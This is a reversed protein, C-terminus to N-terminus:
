CWINYLLFTSKYINLQSSFRCFNKHFLMHTLFNCRFHYGKKHRKGISLAHRVSFWIFFLFFFLFNQFFEQCIPNPTTYYDPLVFCLAGSEGVCRNHHPNINKRKQCKQAFLLTATRLSTDKYPINKKAQLHQVILAFSLSFRSLSSIVAFSTRKIPESPSDKPIM